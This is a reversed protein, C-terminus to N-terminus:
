PKGPRLDIVTKTSTIHEVVNRSNILPWTALGPHQRVTLAPVTEFEKASLVEGLGVKRFDDEERIGDISINVSFEARTYQDTLAPALLKAILATENALKTQKTNSLYGFKFECSVAEAPARHEPGSPPLSAASPLGFSIPQRDLVHRVGKKDMAFVEVHVYAEVAGPMRGRPIVVLDDFPPRQKPEVLPLLRKREMAPSTHKSRIPLIENSPYGHEVLSQAGDKFRYADFDDLSDVRENENFHVKSDSSDGSHTKVHRKAVQPQTPSTSLSESSSAPDSASASKKRPSSIAMPASVSTPSPLSAQSSSSSISQQSQLIAETVHESVDAMKLKQTSLTLFNRSETYSHYSVEPYYVQTAVLDVGLRSEWEDGISEKHFNVHFKSLFFTLTDAESLLARPSTIPSMGAVDLHLRKKDEKGLIGIDKPVSGTSNKLKAPRTLATLSGERSSPRSIATLSGERSSPSPARLGGIHNPVSSPGSKLQPREFAPSRPPSSRNSSASSPITVYQGAQPDTEIVGNEQAFTPKLLRVPLEAWDVTAVEPSVMQFDKGYREAKSEYLTPASDGFNACLDVWKVLNETVLSNTAPSDMSLSATFRCGIRPAKARSFATVDSERLFFEFPWVHIGAPLLTTSPANPDNYNPSTTTSVAKLPGALLNGLNAETNRVIPATAGWTQYTFYKSTCSDATGDLSQFHIDLFVSLSHVPIPQEARYVVTGRLVNGPLYRDSELLLRFPAFQRTESKKIDVFDLSSHEFARAYVVLTGNGGELKLELLGGLPSLEILSIRATGLEKHKMMSSADFVKFLLSSNASPAHVIAECWWQPLFLALM